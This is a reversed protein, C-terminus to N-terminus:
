SRFVSPLSFLIIREVKIAIAMTAVAAVAMAPTDTFKEAGLLTAMSIFSTARVMPGNITSFHAKSSQESVGAFEYSIPREPIARVLFAQRFRPSSSIKRV